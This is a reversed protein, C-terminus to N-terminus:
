KQHESDSKSSHFYQLGWENFVDQAVAPYQIRYLDSVLHGYDIAIRVRSSKMLRVLLLMRRITTEFDPAQRVQEMRLRVNKATNDGQSILKCARGFSLPRSGKQGDNDDSGGAVGYAHQSQQHLAFIRLVGDVANVAKANNEPEGLVAVPWKEFFDDDVQTWAPMNALSGRRLQALVARAHAGSGNKGLYERQLAYIRESVFKQLAEIQETPPYRKGGMDQEKRM